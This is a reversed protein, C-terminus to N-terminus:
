IKSLSVNDIYVEGAAAGNDFLVRADTAGWGTATFTYTYTTRTTNITVTETESSFPAASLGIGAVITRTRDSWADFTMVYTGGDVIELKQTLNVDWPNGASPVNFFYHKNGNTEVVPAPDTGVGVTWPASGAEFNGNVVANGEGPFLSVNDIYVEGAAAGNDFLVRSDPEGWGSVTFTYTFTQRSTTLSVTETESAFPAISQGIGAVITRNVNSWADFTLTYTNGDVIETKQTLNVDWPNGASPVDFFYVNNGSINAVPAPDTGVGVTWSDSGAEFDGNTLNGDDFTSASAAKYFYFNDIYVVPSIGDSDIIIQTINTKGSLNGSDFATMDIDISQWSGGVTTGLSVEAEEIPSPATDVIKVSLGETNGDPVWYDIHMMEMGSLDAGAAYSTVMGLFDLSTMKWVNDSNVNVAEFGGVVSWTTPLEDLSIDSYADSFISVVDTPQRVPPTTAAETPELIETVEFDVTYETTAIAAGKVVVRMTYTGPDTYVYSVTDGINGSAVPATSGTEGSYFEYTTAFDATVTVNLQRSVNADNELVVNINEPPRFSVVLPQRLETADGRQNYAFVTVEYTGEAYVHTVSEGVALSAPGTMDDGFYVTFRVANNASPTITVTGTNDQTIAYLAAVETPLAFSVELLDREDTCSTIMMLAVLM